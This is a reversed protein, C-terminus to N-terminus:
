DPGIVRKELEDRFEYLKDYKILFDIYNNKFYNEYDILRIESNNKFKITSRDYVQDFVTNRYIREFVFKCGSKMERITILYNPLVNLLEEIEKKLINTYM